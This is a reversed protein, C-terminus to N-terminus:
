SSPCCDSRRVIRLGPAIYDPALKERNRKVISLPIESLSHLAASPSMDFLTSIAAYDRPKRLLHEKQAGSSITVQLNYAKAISIERRLCSLFRIRVYEKSLLLSAMDIESSAIAGSALEAEARDFFRKRAETSPFSFLDVRRDKAAQRAVSKSTCFVAIVEFKRRWRRLDRLLEYPTKPALDLRTVLDMNTDDCIRRLQNVEERRINPPLPIGVLRYGLEYSKEIIRKLGQPDDLSARLHLDVFKTM